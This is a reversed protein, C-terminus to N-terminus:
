FYSQQYMFNINKNYGKIKLNIEKRDPVVLDAATPTLHETTLFLTQLLLILRM